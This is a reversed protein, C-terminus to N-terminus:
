IIDFTTPKADVIKSVLSQASCAATLGPMAKGDCTFTIGAGLPLPIDKAAKLVTNVDAATTGGTLGQTARIFGLMSQFGTQAAGVLSTQPAYKAMVARYIKAEDSNSTGDATSFLLSNEYAAAGANKVASDDLCYNIVYKPVTSGLTNLAKMTPGCMTADGVISVADPKGKLAATAQPTVDPTGIPVPIVTFKIGAAKFIPTGIQTVAGVVVAADTAFLALSKVGHTAAYKAQAALVGAVGASWVYSTPTTLESASAGQYSTYPIGAKALPPVIADGVSTNLTVVASVKADIMQQACDAGSAPDEKSKCIVTTIKHGAIGGLNENAYKVAAEAAERAEPQSINPGDEPNIIGIKIESGTAPKDAFTGAPAADISSNSSKQSSDNSNSSSGCATAGLLVVAAAVGIALGRRGRSAPTSHRM